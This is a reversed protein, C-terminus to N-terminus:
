WDLERSSDAYNFFFVFFLIGRPLFLLLVILGLEVDSSQRSAPFCFCAKKKRKRQTRVRHQPPIKKNKCDRSALTAPFAASATWFHKSVACGVARHCFFFFTLLSSLKARLTSIRWLDEIFLLHAWKVLLCFSAFLFLSTKSENKKKKLRLTKVYYCCVFRNM